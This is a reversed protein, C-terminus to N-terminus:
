GHVASGFSRMWQAEETTLPGKQLADLNEDLQKGSKPGCLAIDVHPNSLCFRYCDGATMVPGIWGRPRKLLKRWSTATYAVIAPKKGDVRKDLNPFIDREAGPHAANYRLMYLDLPADKVLEGARPRDHISIASARIKGTEKLRALEGLTADTLASTKGVWFLHLVDIYDTQLKRLLSEAGRRVGGGFFGLIPGSAIVYRERNEKLRRRLPDNLQGTGTNTWFLYNLGRDLAAEFSPVDLGFNCALGLRHVSRNLSPVFRTAFEFDSM